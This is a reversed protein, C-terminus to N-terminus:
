AARLSAKGKVGGKKVSAAAKAKARRLEQAVDRMVTTVAPDLKAKLSEARFRKKGVTVTLEARWIDGKKQGGVARELELAAKATGTDSVLKALPAAQREAQAVIDPTPRYKTGKIQLNM